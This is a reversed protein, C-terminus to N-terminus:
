KFFICESTYVDIPRHTSSCSHIYKYTYQGKPPAGQHTTLLELPIYRVIMKGGEFM